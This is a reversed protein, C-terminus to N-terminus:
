KEPTRKATRRKKDKKYKQQEERLRERSVGLLQRTLGKFRGMPTASESAAGKDGTHEPPSQKKIM